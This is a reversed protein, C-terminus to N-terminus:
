RSALWERVRKALTSEDPLADLCDDLLSEADNAIRNAEDRENEIHESNSHAEELAEKTSTDGDLCYQALQRVSIDPHDLLRNALEDATLSRAMLESVVANM